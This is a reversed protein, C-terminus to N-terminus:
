QIMSLAVRADRGRGIKEGVTDGRTRESSNKCCNSTADKARMHPVLRSRMRRDGHMQQGDGTQRLITTGQDRNTTSLMTTCSKRGAMFQIPALMLIISPTKGAAASTKKQTNNQSIFSMVACPNKHSQSFACSSHVTM